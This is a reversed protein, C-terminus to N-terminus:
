QKWTCLHGECAFFFVPTFACFCASVSPRHLILLASKLNLPGHRAGRAGRPPSIQKPCSICLCIISPVDSSLPFLSDGCIASSSIVLLNSIPFSSNPNIVCEESGGGVWRGGEGCQEESVGREMGVWRMGRENKEAPTQQDAIIM